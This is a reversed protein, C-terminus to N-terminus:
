LWYAQLVKPSVNIGKTLLGIDPMQHHTIPSFPLIGWDAAAMHCLAQGLAVQQLIVQNNTLFVSEQIKSRWYIQTSVMYHTKKLWAVLIIWTGVIIQSGCSFMNLVRTSDCFFLFWQISRSWFNGVKVFNHVGDIFGKTYHYGLTQISM